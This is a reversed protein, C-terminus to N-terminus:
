GIYSLCFTDRIHTSIGFIKMVLDHM